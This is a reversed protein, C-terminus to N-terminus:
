LMITQVDTCESREGDAYATGGNYTALGSVGDSGSASAMFEKLDIFKRTDEPSGSSPIPDM